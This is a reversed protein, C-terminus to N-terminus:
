REFVEILVNVPAVNARMQLQYTGTDYSSTSTGTQELSRGLLRSFRCPYFEGPWIEHIPFFEIGDTIGYTVFNVSDQNHIRAIGGLSSLESLDITTGLVAITKSGVYPGRGDTVVATFVTPYSRHVMNDKILDIGSSVRVTGDAM